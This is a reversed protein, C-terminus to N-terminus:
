KREFNDMYSELIVLDFKETVPIIECNAYTLEYCNKDTKDIRTESGSKIIIVTNNIHNKCTVYTQNNEKADKEDSSAGKVNLQAFGGLFRAFNVVAIVNDECKEVNAVSIYTEPGRLVKLEGPPISVPIYELKRPDSRFDLGYDKIIDGTNNIMPILTNYFIVNGYKQKTFDLNIYTFKNFYNQIVYPVLFVIVIVFIMLFVAIIVQKNQKKRKSMDLIPEKINESKEKVDIKKEEVKKENIKNKKM